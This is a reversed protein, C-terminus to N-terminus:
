RLKEAIRAAVEGHSKNAMTYTNRDYYDSGTTWLVGIYGRECFENLVYELCEESTKYIADTAMRDSPYSASTEGFFVPIGKATFYHDLRECQNDIFDVWTQGGINNSWYMDNDVYHVSVMLRDPVSDTPMKFRSRGTRDVNTHYGSAILVREANNGGTARVADVFAQNCRNVNDYGEEDSQPQLVGNEDFRSNGLYENYGEFVVTYPCDKFYEAIQTWLITFIECAEDTTHRRIIFEDFHHINIVAYMDANTAYDVVERVRKIYDPNIQWKGDNEMMNGWYVPIRVTDFGCAKMGDFTEQTSHGGGWLGEYDSPTNNGVTPMWTYTIQDCKDAYYAEFTNGLNIGLNMADAVELATPSEYADSPEEIEETTAETTTAETTTTTAETTTAGTTTTTAETTTAETTTTTAETTTAETTTDPDTVSPTVGNDACGSLMSIALVLSLAIATLRKM